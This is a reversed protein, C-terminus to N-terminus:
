AMYRLSLKVTARASIIMFATVFLPVSITTAWVVVNSLLPLLIHVNLNKAFFNLIFFTITSMAFGYMGGKLGIRFTHNQFQKAIYNDTGGMLYLIEIIQRHIILSTQSTFAITGMTAAVIMGLILFSIIQTSQALEFLGEKWDLHDEIVIHPSLMHLHQELQALSIDNREIIEVDILQPLFQENTSEISIQTNFNQLIEKTSLLKIKGVQPMQKILDLVQQTLTEQNSSADENFSTNPIEVTIHSQFGVQWQNILSSVSFAVTLSLTALYVMLAVIWPLFRNAPDSRLPLDNYSM